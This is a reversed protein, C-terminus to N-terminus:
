VLKKFESNMIGLNSMCIDYTDQSINGERYLIELILKINQEALSYPETM